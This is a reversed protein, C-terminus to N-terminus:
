STYLSYRRFRNWQIRKTKSFNVILAKRKKVEKKLQQKTLNLAKM